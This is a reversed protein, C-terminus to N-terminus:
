PNVRMRYITFETSGANRTGATNATFTVDITNAATFLHNRYLVYGGGSAGACRVFDGTAGGTTEDIEGADMFRDIDDDGLELIADTGSGNYAVLQRALIIGILDGAAVNMISKTENATYSAPTFIFKNVEWIGEM